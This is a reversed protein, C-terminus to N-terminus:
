PCVWVPPLVVVVRFFRCGNNWYWYGYHGGHYCYHYGCGYHFGCHYAPHCWAQASPVLSGLGGVAMTITLLLMKM